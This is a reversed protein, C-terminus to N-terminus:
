TDLLSCDMVPAFLLPQSWCSPVYEPRSAGLGCKAILAAQQTSIFPPLFCVFL